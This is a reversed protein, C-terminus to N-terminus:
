FIVEIGLFEIMPFHDIRDSPPGSYSAFHINGYVQSTLAFHDSIKMRVGAGYLIAPGSAWSVDYIPMAEYYAGGVLAYTELWSRTFYYRAMGQFSLPFVSFSGEIALQRGIDLGVALSGIKKVSRNVEAYGDRRAGLAWSSYPLNGRIYARVMKEGYPNEALADSVQFTWIGAALTVLFLPVIKQRNTMMGVSIAIGTGGEVSQISM